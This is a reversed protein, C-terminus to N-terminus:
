GSEGGEQDFVWQGGGPGDPHLFESDYFLSSRHSGLNRRQPRHPTRLPRHRLNIRRPTQPCLPPLRPLRPRPNTNPTRPPHLRPHLPPPRRNHPLPPPHLRPNPPLNRRRPPHPHPFPLLPLPYPTPSPRRTPLPIEMSSSNLHALTNTLTSPHMGDIEEQALLEDKILYIFRKAQPEDIMDLIGRWIEEAIERFTPWPDSLATGFCYSANWQLSALNDVVSVCLWQSDRPWSYGVHLASNKRSLSSIPNATLRFDLTKPIAEALQLLSTSAFPSSNRSAPTAPCRDYVNKALAAYEKPSPLPITTRSAVWSIPLVKLVVDGHEIPDIDSEFKKLCRLFSECLRPLFTSKTFPNVVYIVVAQDSLKSDVLVEGTDRTSSRTKRKWLLYTGLRECVTDISSPSIVISDNSLPVSAFGESFDSLKEHGWQHTGLRLSQYTMSMLNMFSAVGRHIMETNPYVCYGTINKPGLCPSLGLEEWFQLGTASLEMLTDGRLVRVNPTDINFIFASSPAHDVSGRISDVRRQLPRIVAKPPAIVGRHTEGTSACAELICTESRPFLAPIISALPDDYQSQKSSSARELSSTELTSSLVALQDAVIQAVQIFDENHGTYLGNSLGAAGWSLERNNAMYVLPSDSMQLMLPSVTKTDAAQSENPSLFPDTM